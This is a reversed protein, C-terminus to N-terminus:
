VECLIVYATLYINKGNQRIKKNYTPVIFFLYRCIQSNLLEAKAGDVYEEMLLPELDAATTGVRDASVTTKIRMKCKESFLAVSGM